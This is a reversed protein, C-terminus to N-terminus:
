IWDWIEQACLWNPYDWVRGKRVEWDSCLLGLANYLLKGKYFGMPLEDENNWVETYM